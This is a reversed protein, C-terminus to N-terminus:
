LTAKAFLGGVIAAVLVVKAITAGLSSGGTSHGAHAKKDANGEQAQQAIARARRSSSGARDDVGSANKKAAGVVDEVTGKTVAKNVASLAADVSSSSSTASKPATSASTKVLRKQVKEVFVRDLAANVHVANELVLSSAITTKSFCEGWVPFVDGGREAVIETLLDVIKGTLESSGSGSSVLGELLVLFTPFCAKAVDPHHDVGLELLLVSVASPEIRGRAAFDVLFTVDSALLPFFLSKSTKKSPLVLLAEPVSELLLESIAVLVEAAPEVYRGCGDNALARILCICSNRLELLTFPLAVEPSEEALIVRRHAYHVVSRAITFFNQASTPTHFAGNGEVATFADTIMGCAALAVQINSRLLLQVGLRNGSCTGSTVVDERSGKPGYISTILNFMTHADGDVRFQLFTKSFHDLSTVVGEDDELAILPLLEKAFEAGEELLLTNKVVSDLTNIAYLARVYSLDAGTVNDLSKNTEQILRQKSEALVSATIPRANASSSAKARLFAARRRVLKAEEEKARLAAAKAQQRQTEAAVAAVRQPVVPQKHVKALPAGVQLFDAGVAAQMQLREEMAEDRKRQKRDQERIKKDGSKDVTVWGSPM